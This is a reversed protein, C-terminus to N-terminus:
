YISLDTLKMFAKRAKILPIGWIALNILGNIVGTTLLIAIGLMIYALTIKKASKLKFGQLVFIYHLLLSSGIILSLLTYVTSFEGTLIVASISWVGGILGLIFSTITLCIKSIIGIEKSEWFPLVAYLYKM